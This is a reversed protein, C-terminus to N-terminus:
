GAALLNALSACTQSASSRSTMWSCGIFPGVAAYLALARSLRHQLPAFSALWPAETFPPLLSHFSSIQKSQLLVKVQGSRLLWLM